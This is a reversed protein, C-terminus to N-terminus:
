YSPTRSHRVKGVGPPGYLQYCWIENSVGLSCCLSHSRVLLIPGKSVTRRTPRKPAPAPAPLPMSPDRVVLAQEDVAPGADMTKKVAEEAEFERKAEMQKLRLVALYEILRRKVKQLGYHDADLTERARTLFTRDLVSKDAELQTSSSSWPISLLWDLYNRVVSTEVSGAPIKRLRRFERIAITREESGKALSAIKRKMDALEAEDDQGAGDIDDDLDSGNQAGKAGTTQDSPRLTSLQRQIAALQQRLIIEKQSNSQQQAMSSKVELLSLRGTIIHTAKSLRALLSPINMGAFGCSHPQPRVKAARM